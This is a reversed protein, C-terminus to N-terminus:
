PNLYTIISYIKHYVFEPEIMEVQENENPTIYYGFIGSDTNNDPYQYQHWITNFDILKKGTLCLRFRHVAACHKGYAKILVSYVTTGEIELVSREFKVLDELFADALAIRANKLENRRSSCESLIYGLIIGLATTIFGVIYEVTNTEM